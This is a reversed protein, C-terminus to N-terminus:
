VLASHGGPSPSVPDLGALSLLGLVSMATFAYARRVEDHEHILNEAVGPLGKVAHGAPDGTLYAPITLSRRRHCFTGLAAKKIDESGGGCALSCGAWASIRASSPFTTSSSTFMPLM